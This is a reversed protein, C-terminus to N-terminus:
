IRSATYTGQSMAEEETKLAMVGVMPVIKVDGKGTKSAKADRYLSGQSSVSGM